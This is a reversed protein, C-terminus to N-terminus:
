KFYGTRRHIILDILDSDHLADARAALRIDNTIQSRFESPLVDSM